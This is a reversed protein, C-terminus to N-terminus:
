NNIPMLYYFKFMTDKVSYSVNGSADIYGTVDQLMNNTAKFYIEDNNVIDWSRIFLKDINVSQKVGDKISYKTM